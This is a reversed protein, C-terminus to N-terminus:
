RQQRARLASQERRSPIDDNVNLLWGSMRAAGGSVAASVRKTKGVKRRENSEQQEPEDKEHVTVVTPETARVISLQDEHKDTAAILAAAAFLVAIGSRIYKKM